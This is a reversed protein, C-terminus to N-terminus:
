WDVRAVYVKPNGNVAVSGGNDADCAFADAEEIILTSGPNNDAFTRAATAVDAERTGVFVYIAM